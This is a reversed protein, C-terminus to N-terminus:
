SASKYRGTKPDLKIVSVEGEIADTREGVGHEEYDEKTLGSMPNPQKELEQVIFKASSYGEVDLSRHLQNYEHDAGSMNDFASRIDRPMTNIIKEIKFLEEESVGGCRFMEIIEEWIADFGQLGVMQSAAEIIINEQEKIGAKTAEQAFRLQREVVEHHTIYHKFLTSVLEEGKQANPWVTLDVPERKGNKRGSDNQNAEKRRDRNGYSPDNIRRRDPGKYTNSSIFPRKNNVVYAILRAVADVTYPALLMENIGADRLKEPFVSDTRGTLVIVPIERVSAESARVERVLWEGGNNGLNLETIIVHPKNKRIFALASDGDFAEYVNRINHIRLALVIKKRIEEDNNAVLIDINSFDFAM